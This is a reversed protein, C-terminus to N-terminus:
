CPLLSYGEDLKSADQQCGCELLSPYESEDLKRFALCVDWLSGSLQDALTSSPQVSGEGSLDICEDVERSQVAAAVADGADEEEM